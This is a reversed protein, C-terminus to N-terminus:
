KCEVNKRKYDNIGKKAICGDNLYSDGVGEFDNSEFLDNKRSLIVAFTEDIDLEEFTGDLVNWDLQFLLQALLNEM